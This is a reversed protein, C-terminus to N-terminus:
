KRVRGKAWGVKNGDLLFRKMNRQLSTNESLDAFGCKEGPYVWDLVAMSDYDVAEVEFLEQFLILNSAEPLLQKLAPSLMWSECFWATSAWEPYHKHLFRRYAEFSQQINEPKLNADSPIHISIQRNEGDLFEYELEGIRFEQLALQRPFWWAWEFSYDGYIRKHEKIFRTCFKMTSIFVTDEIGARKYDGYTKCACGLLEALIYLGSPDEGIRRKIEAIAGDWGERKKLQQWLTEDLVSVNETNYQVMKRVVDMPIDLMKCLIDFTM